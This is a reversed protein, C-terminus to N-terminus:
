DSMRPAAARMLRDNIAEGLGEDPIPAVAIAPAGNADIERLYAFLNAAAEALNGSPSLNLRAGEISGFGLWEEDAEVHLANLRLRAAPAYHSALMGPSSTASGPRADLLPGAISEIDARALGGKRLLVPVEDEFGIVASELGVLSAGGDLVLDIRDGLGSAVHSATTPSVSGSLNASPAVLPGGFKGILAQAAAHGPWRIALTDLGASALESVPCDPLRPLVLTLPGPWFTEALKRAVPNFAVLTEAMELSAIHSILPNFSPRQKATYICAVAEGNTADAALGYVTETPMAVLGGARLVEIGRSIASPDNASLVPATM